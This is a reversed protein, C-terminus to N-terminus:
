TRMWTRGTSATDGRGSDELQEVTRQFRAASPYWALPVSITRGDMLAVCLSDPTFGVHSVREDAKSALIGM